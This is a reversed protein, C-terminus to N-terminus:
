DLYCSLLISFAPLIKMIAKTVAETVELALEEKICPLFKFQCNGKVAYYYTSDRKSYKVPAGCRDRLVSIMYKVSRQCVGLARALNQVTGTKGQSILYDLKKYQELNM